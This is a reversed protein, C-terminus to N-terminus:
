ASQYERRMTRLESTNLECIESRPVDRLPASRNLIETAPMGFVRPAHGPHLRVGVIKTGATFRVVFPDTWPGVVVPPDDNVFVIDVCADPLVRHAYERSGVIM